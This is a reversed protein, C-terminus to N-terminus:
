MPLFASNRTDEVEEYLGDEGHPGQEEPFRYKANRLNCICPVTSVHPVKLADSM